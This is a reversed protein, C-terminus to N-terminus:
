NFLESLDDDDGEDDDDDDEDGNINMLEWSQVINQTMLPDKAMFRTIESRTEELDTPSVGVWIMSLGRKDPTGIPQSIFLRKFEQGYKKHDLLTSEINASQFEQRFIYVLGIIPIDANASDDTSKVEQVQNNKSTKLARANMADNEDIKWDEELYNKKSM